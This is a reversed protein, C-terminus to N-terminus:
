DTWAPPRHHIPSPLRRALKVHYELYNREEEALDTSKFNFLAFVTRM